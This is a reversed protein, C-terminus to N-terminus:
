HIDVFEALKKALVDQYSIHQQKVVKAALCQLNTHQVVNVVEHVPQGRLLQAFTKRSEVHFYNIILEM